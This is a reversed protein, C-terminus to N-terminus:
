AWGFHNRVQGVMQGFDIDTSDYVYCVPAGFRRYLREDKTGPSLLAISRIQYDQQVFHSLYVDAAPLGNTRDTRLAILVNFYASTVAPNQRELKRAERAIFKIVQQPTEKAEQRSTRRAFLTLYGGGRLLIERVGGPGPRLGGKGKGFDGILHGITTSKGVSGAGLIAWIRIKM